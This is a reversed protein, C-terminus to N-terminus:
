REEKRPEKENRKTLKQSGFYHTTRQEPEGVVDVIPESPQNANQDAGKWATQGYNESLLWRHMKSTSRLNSAVQELHKRVASKGGGKKKFEEEPKSEVENKPLLINAWIFFNRM